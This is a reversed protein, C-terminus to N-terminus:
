CEGLASIHQIQQKVREIEAILVKAQDADSPTPHCDCFQRGQADLWTATNTCHVFKAEGTDGRFEAERYQCRSMLPGVRHEYELILDDIPNSM